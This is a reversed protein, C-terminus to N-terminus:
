TRGKHLGSGGRRDQEVKFRPLMSNAGEAAVNENLDSKMNIRHRTNDVPTTRIDKVATCEM